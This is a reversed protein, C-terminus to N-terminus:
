RKVAVRVASGGTRTTVNGKGDWARLDIFYRGRPIRHRLTVRWRFASGQRRLTANIWRPHACSAAHAFRASRRSWWDCRRSRHPKMGLAVAVKKVGSPDLVRGAIVGRRANFGTAATFEFTPGRKDTAKPAPKRATGPLTSSPSPPLPHALLVWRAVSPVGNGDLLFLMYWGPLAVDPNPPATLRAGGTTTQISLPVARQSMDNAHTTAGPAVLTARRVGGTAGVDFQQGWTIRTPASTIRPRQSGVPTGDPKFLYPPDYVEADDNDIGTGSGDPHAQTPAGNYDDGASVVRGDPLLLATSHYARAEVQAAGLRWTGLGPNYLDVNREQGTVTWQGHPSQNGVGGGVSVMSLDPLLVTNLHTRPVRMSNAQATWADPGSEDFTETTATNVWNDSGNVPQNDMGGLEMVKTSGAATQPLLVASGYIRRRLLDSFNEWAFVNGPGPNDLFWSDRVEPGAVMLRGSPMWFLHPYLAGEPARAPDQGYGYREGLTTIRGVGNMDASPQFLEIDHNHANDTNEPHPDGDENLGSMIVMRGDPMLATSPYWRGHAMDPQRKWTETWPNFTYVQNLGKWTTTSTSYDLTGGVVVLRGDATFAQGACWINAPPSNPDNPNSPPPNVQKFSAAGTGKSPDWLWAQATNPASPDVTPNKPYAFWMVKGTPLMAAHIGIVKLPFPQEWAGNVSANGSPTVAAARASPQERAMRAAAKRERAHEAAHEPGLVKTEFARLQKESMGAPRELSGGRDIYQRAPAASAWALCLALAALLSQSVRTVQGSRLM